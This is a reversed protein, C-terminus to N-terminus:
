KSAKKSACVIVPNSPDGYLAEAHCGPRGNVIVSAQGNPQEVISVSKGSAILNTCLLLATALNMLM